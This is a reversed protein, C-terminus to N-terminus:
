ARNADVYAALNRVSSFITRKEDDSAKIKVGFRKEIAMAIELADISDLGLGKVFIAEDSDIEDPSVDDLMCADVILAKIEHELEAM